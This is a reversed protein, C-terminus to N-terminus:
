QPRMSNMVGDVQFVRVVPLPKHPVEEVSDALKQAELDAFTLSELAAAGTKIRLLQRKQISINKFIGNPTAYICQIRICTYM